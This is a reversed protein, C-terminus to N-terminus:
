TLKSKCLGTKQCFQDWLLSLFSEKWIESRKLKKKKDCSLLESHCEVVLSYLHTLLSDIGCQLMESLNVYANQSVVQGGPPVLIPDEFNYFQQRLFNSRIELLLTEM